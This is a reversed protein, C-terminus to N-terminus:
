DNNVRSERMAVVFQEQHNPLMDRARIVATVGRRQRACKKTHVALIWAGNGLFGRFPSM